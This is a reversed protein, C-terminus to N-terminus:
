VPQKNFWKAEEARKAPDNSPENKALTKRYLDIAANIRLRDTPDVNLVIMAEALINDAEERTIRKPRGNETISLYECLFDHVVVAQGYRGWPPIISWLLRPVSAGDTLYGAPIHIWRGSEKSGIYFSFPTTVRYLDRKLVESADLAYQVSMEANFAMFSSM